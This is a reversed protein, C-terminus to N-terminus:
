DTDEGGFAHARYFALEEDCKNKLAAYHEFLLMAAADAALEPNAGHKVQELRERVVGEAANQAVIFARRRSDFVDITSPQRAPRGPGRAVMGSREQIDQYKVVQALMRRLDPESRLKAEEHPTLPVPPPSGPALRPAAPDPNDELYSARQKLVEIERLSDEIEVRRLALLRPSSALSVRNASRPM